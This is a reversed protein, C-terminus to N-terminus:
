LLLEPYTKHVLEVLEEYTLNNDFEIDLPLFLKKSNTIDKKWEEFTERFFKNRFFNYAGRENEIYINKSIGTGQIPFNEYYTIWIM